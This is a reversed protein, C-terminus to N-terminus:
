LYLFPLRYSLIYLPSDPPTLSLFPLHKIPLRTLTPCFYTTGIFGKCSLMLHLPRPPPFIWGVLSPTWPWPASHSWLSSPEFAEMFPKWSPCTSVPPSSPAGTLALFCPLTLCLHLSWLSGVDLDEHMFWDHLQATGIDRTHFSPDSLLSRTDPSKCFINRGVM